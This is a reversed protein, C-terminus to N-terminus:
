PSTIISDMCDPDADTGTGTYCTQLGGFDTQDVDGDGDFDARECGAAPPGQAPGTSCAQLEGFDDIDVDGDCDLDAPSALPRVDAFADIEPTFGSGSPNAIKVYQIWKLGLEAIDFGTGGASEHAYAQCIQTVTLGVFDAPELTPNLPWTPDTPQAWWQNWLGLTPDPNDMDYVRGLTPAFDDAYPGDTFTYWTIGDQSVSVDIPENILGSGASNADPNGNTWAGNATSFFTNGFVILDIGCPNKRDDMVPRDFAVILRGGQGVTVIEFHRFPAIVPVLPVPDFPSGTDWGDGTTDVTPRGLATTPDSFPQGDIYDAIIGIGEVYDIVQTAFDTPDDDYGSAGGASTLLCLACCWTRNWRHTRTLPIRTM